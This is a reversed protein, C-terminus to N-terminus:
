KTGCYANIIDGGFTGPAGYKPPLSVTTSDTVVGNLYVTEQIGTYSGTSCNIVDLSVLKNYAGYRWAQPNSLKFMEWIEGPVRAPMIWASRSNSQAIKVWDAGYAAGFYGVLALGVILRKM